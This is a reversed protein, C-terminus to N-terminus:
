MVAHEVTLPVNVTLPDNVTLPVSIRLLVNVYGYFVSASFSFIVQLKRVQNALFVGNIPLLIIIVVVGALASPGITNYM